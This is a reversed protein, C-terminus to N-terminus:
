PILLAERDIKQASRHQTESRTYVDCVPRNIPVIDSRFAHVLLDGEPAAVPVLPKGRRAVHDVLVHTVRSM